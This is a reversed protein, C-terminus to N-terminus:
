GGASGYDIPHGDARLRDIVEASWLCLAQFPRGHHAREKQVDGEIGRWGVYAEAVPGKPVGGKSTNVQVVAGTGKAPGHGGVRLTLPAAAVTAWVQALLEPVEDNPLNLVDVDRLLDDVRDALHAIPNPERGNRMMELIIPANLLTKRADQDTFLYPGVPILSM